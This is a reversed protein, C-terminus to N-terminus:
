DLCLEQWAQSLITWDSISNSRRSGWFPSMLAPFRGPLLMNVYRPPAYLHWFHCPNKAGQDPPLSSWTKHPSYQAIKNKLGYDALLRSEELTKRQVGGGPMTQHSHQRQSRQHQIVCPSWSPVRLPSQFQSAFFTDVTNNSWFHCPNTHININRDKSSFSAHPPTSNDLVM